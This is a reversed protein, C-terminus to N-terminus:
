QIPIEIYLVHIDNEITQRPTLIKILTTRIADKLVLLLGTQTSNSDFYNQFSFSYKVKLWGYNATWRTAAPHLIKEM